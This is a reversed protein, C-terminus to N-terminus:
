YGMPIKLVTIRRTIEVVITIVVLQLIMVLSIIVLPNVIHMVYVVVYRIVPYAFTFLYFQLSYKGCYEIYKVITPQFGIKKCYDDILFSVSILFATGTLPPIIYWIFDINALATVYVVNFIAFLCM